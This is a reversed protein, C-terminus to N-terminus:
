HKKYLDGYQRYPCLTLHGILLKMQFILNIFGGNYGPAKFM